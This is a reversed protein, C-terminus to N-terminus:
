PLSIVAGLGAADFHDKFKEMLVSFGLESTCHAPAVREVRLDDQLVAAVRRVETEPTVVLHFGGMVTYLHSDIGAAAALINEVGPHSCGVVVALGKSTRVALSLENMDMTGPKQSKTTLLFFGPLIETTAAVGQFKAAEWPSGTTWRVPEKGGFYQQSHPLGPARALFAPPLSGKFYAGELPAYITVRPNVELLYRLGSTHDGHRHSIVVADLRGLDVGLQRVNHEFIAADNGTDFLVRKGGYEVLAAFGWDQTLGSPAGFADYLNTIRQPEDAAAAQGVTMSAGVAVLLAPWASARKM